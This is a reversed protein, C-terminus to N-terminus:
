GCGTTTPSGYSRALTPREKRVVLRMGAPWSSLDVLDTLAAVWAAGPVQGDADYAPTWGDQPIASIETVMADTLGFGISYSLRRKTLYELFAHSGGAGDTRISSREASGIDRIARCSRWRRRSSPSTTPPPTRAPTALECCCRWRNGPARAVTTSSRACRTSDFLRTQLDTGRTGEGFASHRPHRGPRHDFPPTRRHRRRPARDGDASWAAARVAARAADIASLAMDADAALTAILRSVTPDSAVPGFVEPHARLQAIDALCDGGVALAVALDLMIKGPDRRSLPKRWPSLAVSLADTLGTKEAIRLLLVSGVRSVVGTGTALASLRPYPSTSRGVQFVDWTALFDLPMKKKLSDFWGQRSYDLRHTRRLCEGIRPM